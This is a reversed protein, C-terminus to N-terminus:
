RAGSIPLLTAVSPTSKFLTVCPPPRLTRNPNDVAKLSSSGIPLVSALLLVRKWSSTPRYASVRSFHVRATVQVGYFTVRSGHVGFDLWIGSVRKGLALRIVNTSIASPLSPPLSASLSARPPSFTALSLLPTFTRKQVAVRVCGDPVICTSQTM